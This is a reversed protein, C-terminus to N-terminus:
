PSRAACMTRARRPGLGVQQATRKTRILATALYPKDSIRAIARALEASQNFKRGWLRFAHLPVPM